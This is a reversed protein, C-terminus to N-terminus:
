SSQENPDIKGKKYLSKNIEAQLEQEIDHTIPIYPAFIMSDNIADMSSDGKYGVTLSEDVLSELEQELECTWKDSLKRGTSKIQKKVFALGSETVHYTEGRAEHYAKPDIFQLLENTPDGLTEYVNRAIELSVKGCGTFCCKNYYYNSPIRDDIVLLVEGYDRVKVLGDPLFKGVADELNEEWMNLVRKDEM